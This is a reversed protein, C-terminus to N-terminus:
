IDALESTRPESPSMVVVEVHEFSLRRDTVRSWFIPHMESMNAGWPVFADAHAIDEYGGMPEDIGFTRMFGGVASAMCHRANADLNNTRLGGKMLKTAAYAEWITWQGSGLMAVSEPGSERIAQKIKEAMIDFAQDWIPLAC